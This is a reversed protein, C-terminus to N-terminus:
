GVRESSVEREAELWFEIGGGAPCGAAEWKSHARARVVEEGANCPQGDSPCGYEGTLTITTNPDAFSVDMSTARNTAGKLITKSM